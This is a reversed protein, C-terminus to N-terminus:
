WIRFNRIGSCAESELTEAKKKQSITHREGQEPEDAPINSNKKRSDLTDGACATVALFTSISLCATVRQLLRVRSRGKSKRPTM